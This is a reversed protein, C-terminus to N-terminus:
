VACEPALVTVLFDPPVGEWVESCKNECGFRALCHAVKNGTRRVHRISHDAFDKLMSKIEEVLPGHISRDVDNSRIKAVAGLCDTELVIKSLGKTRAMALAQKCAMLESREPDAALHFFHSAGELVVGDHNRMVVGCGGTGDKVSFAGDANLKTWGSAPPLWHETVQVSGSKGAPRIGQWEEILFFSKQVIAHPAAIRVEERAENRALWMQYLIMVCVNIEDEKLSGFWHLLWGQLDRHCRMYGRPRSLRLGSHRRALEWTEASHACEWFRHMLTEERDCVICRVRSKIRRRQLDDGVALGNQILRWVHIKAKGTVNAAWMALWGMHDELSSSSSASGTRASNLHMKLHYASRVSFIGNKTYNWALYDDTGARGVPIKLIDDVDGDFFIERLKEEDWGQGDDLLVEEVRRIEANLKHGLPRM